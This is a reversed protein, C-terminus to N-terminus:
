RAGPASWSRIAFQIGLRQNAATTMAIDLNQIPIELSAGDACVFRLWSDGEMWYASAAYGDGNRLILMTFAAARTRPRQPPMPTIDAARTEPEFWERQDSQPQIRFRQRPANWSPAPAATRQMVPAPILLDDMLKLTLRTESKLRPRPGRKPLTVVKMPWLIPLMWEVTDRVAHGHGVIRGAKDVTIGPVHVVKASIPLVRDSGLLVRDFTLQMWGKGVFHGPDKYDEFRGSLWAGTPLVNRGFGAGSAYCLIPDGVEATKSSLNPESIICQILTGAPVITDAHSVAPIVLWFSICFFAHLIRM